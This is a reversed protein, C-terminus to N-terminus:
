EWSVRLRGQEWEAGTLLVAGAAAADGGVLDLGQVRAWSGVPAAGGALKGGSKDRLEEGPLIIYGPKTASGVKRIILWREPTVLAQLREGASTGMDLLSKIEDLCREKGDRYQLANVGSADQVFVGRLFQGGGLATDAMVKIKETTEAQGNISFAMDADPTRNVWTGGNWMKFAGGTYALGEDVALRYYNNPDTAGSRGATIWYTTSAALTAGASLQLRTWSIDGTLTSGAVSASVLTTNPSGASNSRINLVFNDGPAGYKAVKAWLSL